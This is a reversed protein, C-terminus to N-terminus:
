SNSCIGASVLGVRASSQALSQLFEFELTVYSHILCFSNFNSNLMFPKAEPCQSLSSSYEWSLFDPLPVSSLLNRGSHFHYTFLKKLTFWDCSRVWSLVLEWTMELGGTRFWHCHHCWNYHCGINISQNRHGSVTRIVSASIMDAMIRRTEKIV